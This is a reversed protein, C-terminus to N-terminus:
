ELKTFQKSKVIPQIIYCKEPQLNILVCVSVLAASFLDHPPVLCEVGWFPGYITTLLQFRYVQIVLM